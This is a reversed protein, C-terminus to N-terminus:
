PRVAATITLFSIPSSANRAPSLDYKSFNAYLFVTPFSKIASFNSNHRDALRWDLSRKSKGVQGEQRILKLCGRHPSQLDPVIRWRRVGVMSANHGFEYECVLRKVYFRPDSIVTEISAMARILSRGLRGSRWWIHRIQRSYKNFFFMAFNGVRSLIQLRVPRSLVQGRQIKFSPMVVEM